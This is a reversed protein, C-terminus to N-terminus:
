VTYKVKNEQLHGACMRSFSGCTLLTSWRIYTTLAMTAMSLVVNVPQSSSEYRCTSLAKSGQSLSSFFLTQEDDMSINIKAM